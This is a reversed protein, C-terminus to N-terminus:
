GNGAEEKVSRIASELARLRCRIPGAHAELKEKLAVLAEQRTNGSAYYNECGLISYAEEIHPTYEVQVHADITTSVKPRPVAPATPTDTM